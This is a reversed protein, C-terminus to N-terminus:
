KQPIPIPLKLECCAEDKKAAAPNKRAYDLEYDIIGKLQDWPVNGTIRRGNVFLTPTSSLQLSKGQEITQAVEKDTAKTDICQSLLLSDVGGANAFELIKARLNEPNLGPQQEFIWDHYKWFADPNMNQICRGAIAASRAWPHIQELPFDKFLLRVQSAYAASLQQRLVKAEERCYTCQFDSFVYISVPANAPGAAPAGEAKLNKLEEAFPSSRVDYVKGQMIKYGDPSVYFPVQQNMKDGDTVTVTVLLMGPMESPKPDGPLVKLNAPLMYQHRIYAELTEKHLASGKPPQQAQKPPAKKAQAYVPISLAAALLGAFLFRLM